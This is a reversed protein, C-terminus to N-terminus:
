RYKYVLKNFSLSGTITQVIAHSPYGNSLYTYFMKNFVGPWGDYNFETMNNKQTHFPLEWMLELYPSVPYIVSIPNPHNDYSVTFHEGFVGQALTDRQSIINGNQKIIDFIYSFSSELSNDYYQTEQTYVGNPVYTYRRTIGEPPTTHDVRIFILSDSLLTGNSNYTYFTTDYFAPGGETIINSIKVPLTDNGNYVFKSIYFTDFVGNIYDKSTLSIVRNLNDYQIHYKFITDNPAMQTTDLGFFSTLLITDETNSVDNPQTDKKCAFLVILILPMLYKM